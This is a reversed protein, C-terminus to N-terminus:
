YRGIPDAIPGLFNFALHFHLTKGMRVDYGKREFEEKIFPINIHLKEVRVSGKEGERQLYTVQGQYIEAEGNAKSAHYIYKIRKGGLMTEAEQEVDKFIDIAQPVDGLHFAALGLLYKISPSDYTEDAKILDLLLNFCYEWEQQTFPLTQRQEGYLVPLGTRATWWLRLLLYLCRGDNSIEQRNEELFNAALRCKERQEDDVPIDVNIRDGPKYGAMYFAQMYYGVKSGIERLANLAKESLTPNKFVRAIDEHRKWLRELQDFSFDDPDALEFLHLINAEASMREEPGLKDSTTVYNITVWSFVDIPYFNQRDLARAKLVEEHIRHFLDKAEQQRGGQRLINTMKTGLNSTLEVLISCQLKKNWKGEEMLALAETAVAEAKELLKEIDKPLMVDPLLTENDLDTYSKNSQKNTQSIVFKRLLTAEQLMLRPNRISRKNRLDGLTEALKDFYDVYRKGAAYSDSINANPRVARLLDIAFQLEPNNSSDETDKIEWLLNQMYQVEYRPGGARSARILWAELRTRPGIAYNGVDDPIYRVLEDGNLIDAFDIADSKGLSRLLLELPVNLGLSGPVMVLGTFREVESIKENAIEVTNNSPLFMEPTAYGAELLKQGLVTKMTIDMKGEKMAKTWRQEFSSIERLVGTRITPRTESVLRWLAVLFTNDISRKQGTTSDAPYISLNFRSLFRDFRSVESEETNPKNKESLRDSAEFLYRSKERKEEPKLKLKYFSGVVVVRRGKSALFKVLDSYQDIDVMGDWIVLTCVIGQDEAWKCFMDITNHITTTNVPGYTRRDIFLVPYKKESRIKYALSRLAVTKGTGTQGHIIIPNSIDRKSKLLRNVTEYLNSEFDREFAFGRKYGQWSPLTSAESLFKRFEAYEKNENTISELTTSTVLDDLITAVRSVPSWIEPPVTISGDELYEISIRHGHTQGATSIDVKLKKHEIGESICAFLSETHLVLRGQSRLKVVDEDRELEETLEGNVSFIHTPQAHVEDLIPLLLELSLWDHRGAYGEIVLTGFPTIIEPLREIFETATLKRKRLESTTLPPREAEETRGVYGFLFTCLLNAPNRPNPFKYIKNALKELTRWESQFVKPWITDIASTYIGNWNLRAITELWTPPPLHDSRQEMWHLADEANQHADGHFIQGYNPPESTKKGYKNLVEKLFTDEGTELRLYNQGLFLFKPGDNLQTYFDKELM